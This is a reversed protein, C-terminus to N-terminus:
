RQKAQLVTHDASWIRYRVEYGEPLYIVIPSRSNYRRLSEVSPALSVFKDTNPKQCAMMTSATMSNINTAELYSYGWGKLSKKELKGMLMHHNCDVSMMKGIFLEVKHDNDNDLKPVEIVYREYGEKAQPFMHINDKKVPNAYLTTSGVIIFFAIIQQINGM